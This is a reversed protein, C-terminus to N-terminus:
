QVYDFTRGLLIQFIILYFKSFLKYKNRHFFFFHKFFSYKRLSIIYKVCCFGIIKRSLGYTKWKGIHFTMRIRHVPLCHNNKERVILEIADIFFLSFIFGLWHNQMMFTGVIDIEFEHLVTSGSLFISRSGFTRIFSYCGYSILYRLIIPM